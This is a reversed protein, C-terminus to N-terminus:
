AGTATRHETAAPEGVLHVELGPLADLLRDALSARGVHLGRHPRHVLVLHTVRRDRVVEEVGRAMDSAEGRIIEAGLDTAYDLNSTINQQRDRSLQVGPTEVALALLPAHLASAISAARRLARRCEASEDVLAMVRETVPGVRLGRESVIGELQDDVKGAVFRLSLDRLATLNAETFFRELALTAAGAPLRQRPAYAPPSRAPEHGGARDRRRRLLM